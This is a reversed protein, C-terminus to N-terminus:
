KLPCLCATLRLLEHRLFSLHSWSSSLLLLSLSTDNWLLRQNWHLYLRRDLLKLLLVVWLHELLLQLWQGLCCDQCRPLQWLLLLNHWLNLLLSLHLLSSICVKQLLSHTLTRLHPCLCLVKVKSIQSYVHNFAKLISSLSCIFGHILSFRFRCFRLLLPISIHAGLKTRLNFPILSLANHSVLAWVMAHLLM